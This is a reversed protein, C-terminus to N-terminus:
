NQLRPHNNEYSGFLSYPSPLRSLHFHYGTMIAQIKGIGVLLHDEDCKVASLQTEVANCFMPLEDKSCHMLLM